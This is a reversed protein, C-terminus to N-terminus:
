PKSAPKQLKYQNLASEITTKGLTASRRILGVGPAFWYDNPVSVKSKGVAILLEMHVRYAQFKGAPINITEPGSATMKAAAPTAQGKTTITGNWYWSNGASLPYQLIPLGPYIKSAGNVGSVTRSIGHANFRYVEKEIQPSGSRYELTASSSDKSATVATVSVETTVVKGNAPTKFTWNNGVQFPWLNSKADATNQAFLSPSLGTALVLVILQLLRRRLLYTNIGSRRLMLLLIQENSHAFGM